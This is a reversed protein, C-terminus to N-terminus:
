SRTPIPRTAAALRRIVRRGAIWAGGATGHWGDPATAEGVIHLRELVPQRLAAQAWRGGPRAVAYSGLSNPDSAWRTARAQKFSREVVLPGLLRRLPALVAERIAPDPQAELARAATGGVFAYAIPHDCPRVLYLVAAEDSAPYHLFYSGSEGLPDDALDIAVKMLCGMPLADLARQVLPPLAPTFHIHGAALVGLPVTLVVHRASFSGRATVLRVRDRGIEIATLPCDTTVDLDAALGQVLHGYGAPLMWDEGSRAAAWDAADVDRCDAGCLWPGAFARATTLWPDDRDALCQDLSARHPAAAIRKAATALTAELAQRGAEGLPRGSRDLVIRLRRDIRPAAQCALAIDAFPNGQDAAHIWSAGIDFPRGAVTTTTWTRGGLRARAEIMRCPLGAARATLAAAIGAAGAGVIALETDVAAM